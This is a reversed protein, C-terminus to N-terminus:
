FLAGAGIVFGVVLFLILMYVLWGVLCTAIARGTSFDLAQRGAIVGAVLVWVSAAFSLLGGLFPIFSLIRLVGPSHAFGLTRLLQGYTAETEPGRFVTTGLVYAFLAWLLWGGISAALGVLIGWLFWIADHEIVGGIGTGIGTALGVLVVAAFAQLNASTDAEVEEYLDIDLRAARIMRSWLSRPQSVDRNM